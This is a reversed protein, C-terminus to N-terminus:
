ADLSTDSSVQSSRSSARIVASQPIGAVMSRTSASRVSAAAPRMVDPDPRARASVSSIAPRSADAGGRMARPFSGVTMRTTPTLPAPLVVVMPLIAWRRDDSPCFTIMPAPSVKRAAATSCNVTHASRAPASMTRWDGPASGPATAKSATAAPRARLASTTMMSVAPRRCVWCLRMSSSRLTYPTM